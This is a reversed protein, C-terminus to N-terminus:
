QAPITFNEITVRRTVTGAYATEVVVLEAADFWEPELRALGASGGQTRWPFELAHTQVDFASAASGFSFGVFAASLARAALSTGAFDGMWSMQAGLEVATGDRRNRLFFAFSPYNSHSTFPVVRWYRVMLRYGGGTPVARVVEFRSLRDELAAGGRLPLTGRVRSGYLHFDLVADFRGTQGKHRAHEADTLSLLVPWQEYREEVDNLVRAAVVAHAPKEPTPLLLGEISGWPRSFSELQRSRLTTGDALTLAGSVAVGQIGFRAPAGALQVFAHIQRKPPGGTGFHDLSSNLAFRPEITVPTAQANDAWRGVDPPPPQLFRWPWYDPLFLTALLGACAMAAAIRRRRYRYQYVVVALASFIFMVTSIVGPTPDSVMPTDITDTVLGFAFAVSTLLLIAAVGTAFAGIVALAFTALSPTLVAVACFALAWSLHSTLFSPAAVLQQYAGAQFISMAAMDAGLPVVVLVIAILLLKATLLAHRSYPRTLWFASWGVLAEDHVLRAVLLALTITQLVSLLGSLERFVVAAAFTEGATAAGIGTLAVRLVLVGVWLLVLWRLHRLDKRLIHLVQSV